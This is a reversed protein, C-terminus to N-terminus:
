KSENTTRGETDWLETDSEAEKVEGILRSLVDRCSDNFNENFREWIYDDNDISNIIEKVVDDTVFKNTDIVEDNEDTYEMQSFAEAIDDKNIYTVWVEDDPNMSSFREALDKAKSM